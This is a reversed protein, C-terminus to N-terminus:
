SFSQRAQEVSGDPYELEKGGGGWLYGTSALSPLPSYTLPGKGVAGEHVLSSPSM